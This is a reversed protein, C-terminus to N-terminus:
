KLVRDLWTRVHGALAATSGDFFHDAGAVEVQASGRLLRLENARADAGKLIVPFDKEGFVDLVPLRFKGADRFAGGAIGISVWANVAPQADRALFDNVMNGGVDHSIIAVKELGSARLFAVAARLRAAAEPYVTPFQEPKANEALVPMQISLTTYGAAPLQTRLANILGWDPHAGFGHVLVVGARPKVARTLVAFFPRGTPLQLTFAEGVLVTQRVEEATRREREYDAQAHAPGTVFACALLLLARLKV